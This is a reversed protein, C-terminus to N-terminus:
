LSVILLGVSFCKCSQVSLSRSDGYYHHHFSQLQEGRIAAEGCDGENTGCDEMGRDSCNNDRYIQASKHESLM